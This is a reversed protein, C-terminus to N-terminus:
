SSKFYTCLLAVEVAGVCDREHHARVRSFTSLACSRVCFGRDLAQTREPDREEGM